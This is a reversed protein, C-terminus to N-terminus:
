GSSWWPLGWLGCEQAKLQMIGAEGYDTVGLPSAPLGACHRPSWPRKVFLQQIFSSKWISETHSFLHKVWLHALIGAGRPDNCIGRSEGLM